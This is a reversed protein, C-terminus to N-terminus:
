VPGRDTFITVSGGPGVGRKYSFPESVLVGEGRAFRPWVDRPDGKALQYPRMSVGGFEPAILDAPGMNTRVRRSRVTLVGEVGPLGALARPLEPPLAGMQRRGIAGPPSVYVDALLSADLWRVVTTRLSQVLVGVAVAAGVSITLAAVAVSTR